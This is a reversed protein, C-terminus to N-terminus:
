TLLYTTIQVLDGLRVLFTLRRCNSEIIIMYSNCDLWPIHLRNGGRRLDTWLDRLM